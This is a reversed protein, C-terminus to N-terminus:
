PKFDEHSERVAPPWRASDIDTVVCVDHWTGAFWHMLELIGEVAWYLHSYNDTESQTNVFDIFEKIYMISDGRAQNIDLRSTLKDALKDIDYFEKTMSWTQEKTREREM